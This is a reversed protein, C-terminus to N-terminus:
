LYRKILADRIRDDQCLESLMLAFEKKKKKWALHAELETDYYGLSINKRLFPDSIQSQFKGIRTHFSVGLLYNGRAASHDTIFLNIGKSVFAATYESYVKNGVVLIDKDLQCNIWDKNPQSDVWEIFNSLYLWHDCVKCGFYSPNTELWTKDYCRRLMEKWKVYYPCVWVLKQKRKGDVRPLEVKKSVKYDVDNIGVGYVLKSM